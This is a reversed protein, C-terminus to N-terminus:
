GRPEDDRSAESPSTGPPEVDAWGGTVAQRAATRVVVTGAARDHWGQRTPSWAASLYVLPGILAAGAIPVAAPVTPVLYRITASGLRPPRGTAVDVVQIRLLRKGVTQGSFAILLIEYLASVALAALTVWTPMEITEAEVDIDTFALFLAAVPIAVVLADIIRAGVRTGIDARWDTGTPLSTADV